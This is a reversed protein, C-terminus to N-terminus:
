WRLGPQTERLSVYTDDGLVLHDAIKIGLLRGGALLDRTLNVDDVSPTPDGTPHNHVLILNAAGVLLATRFLVKPDVVAEDQGGSFLPVKVALLRMKSDLALLSVHEQDADLNEYLPRMLRVAAEPTVVADGPQCRAALRIRIAEVAYRM